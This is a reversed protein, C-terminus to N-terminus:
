RKIFLELYVVQIYISRFPLYSLIVKQFEVFLVVLYYLKRFYIWNLMPYEWTLQLMKLGLIAIKLDNKAMKALIIAYPFDTLVRAPRCFGWERKYDYSKFRRESKSFKPCESIALDIAIM